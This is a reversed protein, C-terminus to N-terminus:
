SSFPFPFLLPKSELYSPQTKSFFHFIIKLYHIVRKWHEQDANAPKLEELLVFKMQIEYKNFKCKVENNVIQKQLSISIHPM